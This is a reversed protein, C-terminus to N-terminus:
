FSKGVEIAGPFNKDAMMLNFYQKVCDSGNMAYNVENKFIEKELLHKFIVAAKKRDEQTDRGALQMALNKM